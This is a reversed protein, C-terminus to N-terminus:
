DLFIWHFFLFCKWYIHQDSQCNSHLVLFISVYKDNEVFRLYMWSPGWFLILYLSEVLRSLPFSDQVWPCRPPQPNELLFEM